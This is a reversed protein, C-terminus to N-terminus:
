APLLGIADYARQLTVSAVARAKEAGHHLLAALQARDDLLEAYRAQIPRLLEVVSEGTDAKLPGEQTYKGAHTETDDGMSAALIELLNTDGPKNARDVRVEGDSDTVARKFKKVIASPDESLYVLGADSDTSKSMKSTPDQLDMVRAAVTPLTAKPVTFTHGYRQNFRV